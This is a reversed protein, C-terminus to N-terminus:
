KESQDGVTKRLSILYQIFSLLMLGYIMDGLLEAIVTDISLVSFLADVVFLVIILFFVQKLKIRFLFFLLIFLIFFLILINDFLLNLYPIKELSNLIFLVLLFFIIKASNSNIFEVVFKKHNLVKNKM